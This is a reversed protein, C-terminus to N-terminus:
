PQLPLLSASLDVVEEFSNYANLKLCCNLNNPGLWLLIAFIKNGGHRLKTLHDHLLVEIHLKDVSGVFGITANKM